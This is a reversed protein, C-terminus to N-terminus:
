EEEDSADDAESSSILVQSGNRPMLRKTRKGSNIHRIMLDALVDPALGSSSALQKVQPDNVPFASIKRVLPAEIFLKSDRWFNTHGSLVRALTIMFTTRLYTAGQKFVVRQIGWCSDILEFFTKVNERFTRVGVNGMITDLGAAVDNVRTYRGPGLHSHLNGVVKLYTMATVLQERAMRQSWCIRGCMPFTKDHSLRYLVDIAKNDDRLNRALVNPSLKTRDMNLIRFREREWAEDTNFHVTAGLRPKADSNIQMLRMAANIRQLGDIIYVDGPLIFVGNQDHYDGARLGLDVDPVSAGSQFAKVMSELTALPLIERQYDGVKLMHLYAPDLTGRLIINGSGDDDLAAHYLRVGEVTKRSTM